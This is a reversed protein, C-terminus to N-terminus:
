TKVHEDSDTRMPTTVKQAQMNLAYDVAFLYLFWRFFIENEQYVERIHPYAFYTEKPWIKLGYLVLLSRYWSSPTFM